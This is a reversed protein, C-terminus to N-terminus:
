IVFVTIHYVRYTDILLSFIYFFVDIKHQSGKPCECVLVHAHLWFMYSCSLICVIHLINYFYFYAGATLDFIKDFSVKATHQIKETSTVM